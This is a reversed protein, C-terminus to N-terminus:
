HGEKSNDEEVTTTEDTTNVTSEEFDEPGYM